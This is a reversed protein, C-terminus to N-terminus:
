AYARSMIKMHGTDFRANQDIMDGMVGRMYGSLLITLSVGITLIIIPLISRNKDGLIGKLLFKIM